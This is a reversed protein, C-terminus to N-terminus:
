FNKNSKHQGTRQIMLRVDFDSNEVGMKLGPRPRRWIPIHRGSTYPKPNKPRFVSSDPIPKSSFVPAYMLIFTNITEIGFSYSRFLFIFYEFHM